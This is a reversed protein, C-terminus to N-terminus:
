IHPVRIPAVPSGLSNGLVFEPIQQPSEVRGVAELATPGVASQAKEGGGSSHESESSPYWLPGLLIITPSRTVLM